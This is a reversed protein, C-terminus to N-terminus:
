FVGSAGSVSPRGPILTAGAPPRFLEPQVRANVEVNKFQTVSHAGQASDNSSSYMALRLEDSFWVEANITLDTPMHPSSGATIRLEHRKGHARVTGEFMREGLDAVEKFTPTNPSTATAQPPKKTADAKPLTVVTVQTPNSTDFFYSKGAVPDNIIVSPGKELRTRGYEDRLFLSTSIDAKAGPAAVRSTEMIARLAPGNSLKTVADQAFLSLGTAALILIIPKM